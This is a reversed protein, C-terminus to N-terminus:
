NKFLNLLGWALHRIFIVVAQYSAKLRQLFQM